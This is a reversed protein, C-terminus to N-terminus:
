VGVELMPHAPIPIYATIEPFGFQALWDYLPYTLIQQRRCYRQMEEATLTLKTYEYETRSGDANLQEVLCGNQDYRYEWSDTKKGNKNLVVAQGSTVQNGAYSFTHVTKGASEADYVEKRVLNGKEDYTCSIRDIGTNEKASLLNWNEDYEFTLAGERDGSLSFTKVRDHETYTFEYVFREEPLVMEERVLRDAKDYSFQLQGMEMGELTYVVSNLRGEEDYDFSYSDMTGSCKVPVTVGENEAYEWQFFNTVSPFKKRIVNGQDDYEFEYFFDVEGDIPEAKKLWVGQEEDFYDTYPGLDKSYSLLKGQSDYQYQFLEIVEGASDYVREATRAYTVGDDPRMHKMGCGYSGLVMALLMAFVILKKM